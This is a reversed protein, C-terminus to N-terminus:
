YGESYYPKSSNLCSQVKPSIYNIESDFRYNAGGYAVTNQGSVYLFGGSYEPVFINPVNSFSRLSQIDEGSKSAYRWCFKGDQSYLFISKTGFRYRGSTLQFKKSPTSPPIFCFRESRGNNINQSTGIFFCSEDLSNAGLGALWKKQGDVNVEVTRGSETLKGEILTKTGNSWYFALLNNTFQVKCNSDIKAEKRTETESYASNTCIANKMPQSFSPMATILSIVGLALTVLTTLKM